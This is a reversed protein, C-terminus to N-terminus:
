ADDVDPERRKLLYLVLWQVFASLVALLVTTLIVSTVRDAQLRGDVTAAIKEPDREGAHIADLVMYKARRMLVRRKAAPIGAIDPVELCAASELQELTDTM